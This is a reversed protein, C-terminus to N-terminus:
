RAVRVMESLIQEAREGTVWEVHGDAFAVNLGGDRLERECLVAETPATQTSVGSRYLYSGMRDVTDATLVIPGQEYPAIFQRETLMGQRVLESLTAPWQGKHENSYIICSTVIGRINAASIARRAQERSAQLSEGISQVMVDRVSKVGPARIVLDLTLTDVGSSLTCGLGADSAAIQEIATRIGAPVESEFEPQAQALRLLGALDVYALKCPEQPLSKMVTTMGPSNAFSQGDVQADVVTQIAKGDQGIVLYDNVVAMGFSPGSGAVPTQIIVGEYTQSAFPLDYAQTLAGLQQTFKIPEALRVAAVWNEPGDMGVKLAVLWEDVLNGLFDQHPDFGLDTRWEACEERFEAAIAPDIGDLLANVQDLSDAASCFAGRVFGTYGSPVLRTIEAKGNRPVLMEPLGGVGEDLGVTVRARLEQDSQWSVTLAAAQVRDLGLLDFLADAGESRAEQKLLPHFPRYDLYFVADTSVGPRGVLRAYADTGVFRPEMEGGALWTDVDSKRTSAYVVGDKVGTLLGIPMPGPLRIVRLPGAESVGATASAPELERLMGFVDEDLRRFFEAEDVTLRTAFEIRMQPGTLPTGVVAVMTPGGFIAAAPTLPTRGQCDGALMSALNLLDAPKDLYLLFSPEAPALSLIPPAAPKAPEAGVVPVVMLLWPILIYPKM